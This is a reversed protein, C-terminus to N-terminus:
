GSRYPSSNLDHNELQAPATSNGGGPSSIVPVYEALAFWIDDQSANRNDMQTGQYYFVPNNTISGNAVMVSTTVASYYEPYENGGSSEMWWYFGWGGRLNGAIPEVGKHTEQKQWSYAEETINLNVVPWTWSLTPWHFLGATLGPPTGAEMFVLDGSSYYNYVTGANGLASSFHSVSAFHGYAANRKIHQVGYRVAPYDNM